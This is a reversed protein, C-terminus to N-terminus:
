LIGIQILILLRQPPHAKKLILICTPILVLKPHHTWVAWNEFNCLDRICTQIMFEYEGSSNWIDAFSKEEFTVFIFLKAKKSNKFKSFGDIWDITINM